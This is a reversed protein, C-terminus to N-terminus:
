EIADLDDQIDESMKEGKAKKAARIQEMKKKKEEKKVLYTSYQSETLIGKFEQEWAQFIKKREQGFQKKDEGAKSKAAEAQTIRDETIRKVKPVQEDTLTLETKLRATIKDAREASTVIKKSGDKKTAAEKAAPSKKAKEQAMVSMTTMSLALFSFIFIIKKMKIM